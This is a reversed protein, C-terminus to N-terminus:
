FSIFRNKIPIFLIVVLLSILMFLYTQNIIEAHRAYFSPTNQFPTDILDYANTYRNQYLISGNPAIICSIGNETARVTTLQNCFSNMKLINLIINELTKSNIDYNSASIFVAESGSRAADSFRNIFLSEYCILPTFKTENLHFTEIQKERLKLPTRVATKFFPHSFVQPYPVYESFPIFAEKHRVQFAHKSIVATLNSMTSDKNYLWIGMLLITQPMNNNIQRCANTIFPAYRLEDGTLQIIAEPTIIFQINTDQQSWLTSDIYKKTSLQGSSIIGVKKYKWNLTQQKYLHNFILLVISFTFLFYIVEQKRGPISFILYSILIICFSTWFVGLFYPLTFWNLFASSINGIQLFPNGIELALFLYESFLFLLAFLAIRNKDTILLLTMPLLYICLPILIVLAEYPARSDPIILFSYQLLIFSFCFLAASLFTRQKSSNKKMIYFIGVFGVISLWALFPSQSSTFLLAGCLLAEIM